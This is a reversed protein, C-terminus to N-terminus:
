ISLKRVMSDKIKYYLSEIFNKYFIDNEDPKLTINAKEIYELIQKRINKKKDM